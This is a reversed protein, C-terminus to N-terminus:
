KYRNQDHTLKGLKRSDIHLWQRLVHYCHDSPLDGWKQNMVHDVFVSLEIGRVLGPKVSTFLKGTSVEM